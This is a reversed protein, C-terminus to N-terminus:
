FALALAAVRRGRLLRVGLFRARKGCLICVRACVACSRGHSIIKDHHAHQAVLHIKGVAAADAAVRVGDTAPMERLAVCAASSGCVRPSPSLMAAVNCIVGFARTKTKKGQRRVAM